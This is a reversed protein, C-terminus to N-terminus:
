GVAGGTERSVTAVVGGVQPRLARRVNTAREGPIPAPSPDRGYPWRATLTVGPREPIDADIWPPQFDFPRAVAGPDGAFWNTAGPTIVGGPQFSWAFAVVVMYRSGTVGPAPQNNGYVSLTSGSHAWLGYFPDDGEQELAHFIAETFPPPILEVPWTYTWGVEPEVPQGPMPNPTGDATVYQADAMWSGGVSPDVVGYANLGRWDLEMTADAPMDPIPVVWQAWWVRGLDDTDVFDQTAAISAREVDGVIELHQAAVTAPSYLALWANLNARPLKWNTRNSDPGFKRHVGLFVDKFTETTAEVIRDEWTDGPSASWNDMTGAQGDRVFLAALDPYLDASVYLDLFGHGLEHHFVDEFLAKDTNTDGLDQRIRVYATTNAPDTQTAAYENHSYTTPDAVFEVRVTMAIPSWDILSDDITDQCWQRQQGTGNVFTLNM